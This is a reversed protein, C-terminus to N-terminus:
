RPNTITGAPDVRLEIENGDVYGEVEWFGRDSWDIDDIVIGPHAEEVKAILSSLKTGTPPAVAHAVTAATVIATAILLRM